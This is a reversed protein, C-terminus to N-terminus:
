VRYEGRTAAAGKILLTMVQTAIIFDKIHGIYHAPFVIYDHEVPYTFKDILTGALPAERDRAIIIETGLLEEAHYVFKRIPKAIPINGIM